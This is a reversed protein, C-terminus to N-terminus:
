LSTEEIVQKYISILQKYHIEPSYKEVLKRYGNEGLRFCLDENSSLSSIKDALDVPDGPSFLLGNVGDEIIEPYAGLRPAIVPLHHKMAELFVIPAGEYSRSTFVLFRANRYYNDMEEKPLTGLFKISEPIKFQSIFVSDCQGATLIPLVKNLTYETELFNMAKIILDFGKQGNVRGSFAIYSKSSIPNDEKHKADLFNPLVFIKERTFGNKMLKEKQFDTLCIFRCINSSFLRRKRAYFNRLSYGLSKPFSGECNKIICNWENGGACRECIEGNYFFLGNPCVLRYNHVTMVIPIHFRHITSLVAPSILPYLNHIHVIEPRFTSILQKIESVSRYNYFGSFFANTKAWFGNLEESRRSYIHVENGQNELLMMQAELVSEEGSFKGYKNHILLIRM